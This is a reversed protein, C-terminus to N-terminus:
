RFVCLLFQHNLHYVLQPDACAEACGAGPAPIIGRYSAKRRKQTRSEERSVENEGTISLLGGQLWLLSEAAARSEVEGLRVVWLLSPAWFELSRM